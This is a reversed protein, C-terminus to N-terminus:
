QHKKCISCYWENDEGLMEAQEFLKLCDELKPNKLTETDEKEDNNTELSHLTLLAKGIKTSTEVACELKLYKEHEHGKSALEQITETGEYSLECNKCKQIGCWPCNRYENFGTEICLKYPKKVAQLFYKDYLEELGLSEADKNFEIDNNSRIILPKLYKFLNLHMQKPTDTTKM